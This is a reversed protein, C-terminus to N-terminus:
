VTGIRIADPNALIGGVRESLIIGLQDSDAYRERLVSVTVVQRSAILYGSGLDGFAVVKNLATGELQVGANAHQPYGILQRNGAPDRPEPLPWVYRSQADILKRISKETAPQLLWRANDAYQPPLSYLLDLVKPVSGLAATTNSIFTATTGSIDTTAAGGSLLGLPQMPGTGGTFAIDETVALTDGGNAGLWGLVLSDDSLDRSVRTTARLKRVPIELLGFRPDTDSQSPVEGSWTAV